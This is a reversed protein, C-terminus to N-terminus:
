VLDNLTDKFTEIFAEAAKSLYRGRRYAVVLTRSPVPEALPLYVPVFESRPARAIFRPVLTIGMGTAVLSQITEMNNSEFVVKPEFGAQQCLDFTIKRFGQGKKLVIFSEGSLEDIRVPVPKGAKARAALPHSEPVALDIKEEGIVEYTLSPEQLPLSLLSLDSKGGATLKELNMSSDELLTIEIDPYQRKFTPLVHPLLHAGTIPMSGIVVKGSKLQSIDAMEQRLLEVADIIKQAQEMFSAGAHTLEVTSTNRQFLLVGLEKELKSLQQSLSPQAIHLKEAARSFNREQAIQLAYQLQRLEM